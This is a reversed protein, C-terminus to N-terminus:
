PKKRDRKKASGPQEQLSLPAEAQEPEHAPTKEVTTLRKKLIIAQLANKEVVLRKIEADKSALHKEHEKTIHRFSYWVVLLAVALIPCQKIAESAWDPLSLNLSEGIVLTVETFASDLHAM